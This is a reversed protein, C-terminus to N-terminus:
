KPHVPVMDAHNTDLVRDSGLLHRLGPGHQDIFWGLHLGKLDAMALLQDNRCPHVFIPGPCQFCWEPGRRIRIHNVTGEANQAAHGHRPRPRPFCWVELLNPYLPRLNAYLDFITAITLPEGAAFTSGKSPGEERAVGRVFLIHM